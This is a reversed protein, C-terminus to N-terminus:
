ESGKEESDRLFMSLHRYFLCITSGKLSYLLNLFSVVTQRGDIKKGVIKWLEGTIEDCHQLYNKDISGNLLFRKENKDKKVSKSVKKEKQNGKDTM